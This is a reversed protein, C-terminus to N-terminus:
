EGGGSPRAPKGARFLKVPDRGADIAVDFFGMMMEEWSQEGWHVEKTPDPNFRNNASNDFTGTVELRIGKPIRKPEAFQYWLQWDFRYNPVNLLVETEGTPYVAKYIFSKGRLHMHPLLSVLEADERLTMSASVEHSVAGPPISFRNTSVASTFVRQKPPDKAFVLGIASQDTGAEGNATYHLQLVLDSGAKLLKAKGPDLMEPPLGPAFGVLFERAEFGAGEGSRRPQPKGEKEAQAQGRAQEEAQSRPAFPVGPKQDAFWKSGPERVFAIIHHVVKRNGPRAEAMRVWKDGTLGTPIIVYQYDVAGSAPVSFASPMEFVMDPKGIGWGRVWEVPKPADKADGEKAGSDVWGVLTDIDAQSLRRDNSWKGHAPDAFWPPMQRALVAQRIAKAWPRTQRYTLFAMPAAEGPRHCTQCNKQLVPLVDKHFTVTGPVTAGFVASALGLTILLRM